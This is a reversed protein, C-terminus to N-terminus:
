GVKVGLHVAAIGFTLRHTEVAACGARRLRDALEEEPTWELVSRNLYTYARSRSLLNGLFPLIRGFYVSYARRLFPRRPMTFELVAIRGQPRAVRVLERLGGDLDAVNRIGFAVSVVDFHGDPFPLRLADGRLFRVGRCSKKDKGRRLMPGCFDVGVVPRGTEAHFAAALDGTGTCVDLVPGRPRALAVARRRWRRDVNFSLLHNLLDYRPAIEGFMSRITAADKRM